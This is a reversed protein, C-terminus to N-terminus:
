ERRGKSKRAVRRQIAVLDSLLRHDEVQKAQVLLLDLLGLISRYQQKKSKLSEFRHRLRWLKRGHEEVTEELDFGLRQLLILDRRITKEDVAFGEAAEAVRVGNRTSSLCELLQWQRILPSHPCHYEIQRRRIRFTLPQPHTTPM